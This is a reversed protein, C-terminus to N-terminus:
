WGPWSARLAKKDVKGFATTPLEEVVRYAKPRKYNALERVCLQAPSDPGSAFDPASAAGRAPVVFAVVAEGWDPQPVGVVAVASIEPSRALVNEVETSYVNMGGSILMDNARDLLYVYGDRLMGIDGTHLWGDRLAKATAEPLGLYGDMLYPARACIEGVEGDALTAGTDDRVEIAVMAAPRGCSRLLEPREPDHDHRSLRTLFNPAETQGYLQVFVPGLFDLGQRLREVAMPAAGYMITRLEPASVEFPDSLDAIRDLLRYIMTPVMFTFTVGANAMRDLVMDVDFKPELLIRAGKLLGAQMLYGASHPLPTSLLLCERDTLEMEILHAMMCLSASAQSHQVGKQRGTTGGTYAILARDSSAIEVDPPGDPVPRTLVEAWELAGTRVGDVVIVTDLPGGAALALEVRSRDVIAVAAGSDALVYAVEPDSLMDTVAVRTAGLRLIAQDAIVWELRTSMAIAVPTGPGVGCALLAHALADAARGLERYTLSEGRCEVATADGYRTSAAVFLDRLVPARDARLATTM